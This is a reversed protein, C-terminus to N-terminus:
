SVDNAHPLFITFITGNPLNNRVSVTGGHAKVIENVIFLGLGTGKTRRTDENGIRYFKEFIKKKERDDIGIGGDKVSIEVGKEGSECTLEVKANGPSYKVANELLNLIVSTIGALDGYFFVESEDSLLNFTSNPYKTRLQDILEELLSKLNLETRNVEYASELKASLLLDNVLKNLRDTEKLANGGLKSVQQPNLQHKLFTELVLRISAIPSKLEHTISLLFNRRTQAAMVEKKYGRNIFWFGLLLSFTLVVAEGIIMARQKAYESKLNLYSSHKEFEEQSSVKGEAIMVIKLLESKAQFADDNKAILLVIWWGFALLMYFIVVYALLGLKLNSYKYKGM